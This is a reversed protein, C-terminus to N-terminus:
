GWEPQDKRHSKSVTVGSNWPLRMLPVNVALGVAVDVLGDAGGAAEAVLEAVDGVVFVEGEVAPSNYFHLHPLPAHRSM